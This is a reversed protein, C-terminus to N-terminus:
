PASGTGNGNKWAYTEAEGLAEDVLAVVSPTPGLAKIRHMVSLLYSIRRAKREETAVGGSKPLEIENGVLERGELALLARQEIWRIRRTSSRSRAATRAIHELANALLMPDVQRAARDARENTHTVGGDGRLDAM